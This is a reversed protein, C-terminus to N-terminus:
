SRRKNGFNREIISRKFELEKREKEPINKGFISEIILKRFSFAREYAYPIDDQIIKSMDNSFKISIIENEKIDNLGIFFWFVGINIERQFVFYFQCKPYFHQFHKTMNKNIDSDYRIIQNCPYGITFDEEKPDFPFPLKESLYDLCIQVNRAEISLTSSELALLPNIIISSSLLATNKLFNRRTQM